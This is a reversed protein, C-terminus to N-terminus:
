WKGYMTQEWSDPVKVAWPQGDDSVAWPPLMATLRTHEAVSHHSGIPVETVNEDHTHMVVPYGHADLRLLALAQIERSEHSVINQTLVGGYLFMPIWGYAGKTQNSNWGDYMIEVEWDRAYNRLSPRLRANHYRTLGGSPGQCFLAGEHMQFLVRRYGFAQGPNRIAMIAAGELGYLEPRETDRFKDRTQGGWFEVIAPQEDRTKLIAAKINADAGLLKDAGFRKWGNIWAGFDGSLVALKGPNQRAPHHKGTAKKHGVIDDFPIGTLKAAMAEYIKGHTRFVDIRWQEGALESTVVAQIANYDASILRHGPAAVIMSRLCCKVVELPPIDPYAYELLEISRAAIVDLAKRVEDPKEFRDHMPRPLNAPQVGQGNWLSTHAAYYAYQDRLRGDACTQARMAYLKKVSGLALDQRIEIVRRAAPPLDDRNLLQGVAEEDFADAHVGQRHLWDLAAGVESPSEVAPGAQRAFVGPSVMVDREEWTLRRLELRAREDAQEVIAICDDVGKMNIAMGRRNCRQDFRWVREEHETLPPLVDSAESEARVDQENYGYFAEFDVPATTPTWFLEPNTKTPNRPVTLKKILRDGIVDKQNKLGLVPAANGLAGPYAAARSKAMACMQQSQPLPPWGWHVVCWEWVASEFGVNWGEFMGGGVVWAALRVPCPYKVNRYPFENRTVIVDTPLRWCFSLPHFTSHWIYNYLGVLNLGKKNPTIGPLALGSQTQWKQAAANWEYGAASYTEFDGHANDRILM